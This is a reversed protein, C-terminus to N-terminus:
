LWGNNVDRVIVTITQDAGGTSTIKVTTSGTAVGTISLVTGSVTATAIATSSSTATFSMSAGDVFYQSLDDTALEGVELTYNPIKMATGTSSDMVNDLMLKADIIGTGMKGAYRSLSVQELNKDPDGSYYYAYTKIGTYYEEMSRTSAKIIDMFAEAKYHKKLKYAKSLGLAVVGSVIPCAMSTGDMYDYYITGYDPTPAVLSYISGHSTLEYDFDGGPASVSMRSDYNTYSAPTYDASLAGVSIYDQYRSPYCAQSAYENGSAFIAIGGDIVGNPSGANNIFYDLAEKELASGSLWEDDEAYGATNPYSAAGSNYGWSCQLIVAGNDAAYKMAQAEQYQSVMNYGDIIQCVMIRVGDGNDGGGAISKIGIDNNNVAAILGAVHTGHGTDGSSDYSIIGKDLVFNYGYYDGAYGNGDSDVTSAFTEAENTWMNAQLDPHDYCVGEDLVAVIISPDGTEIAWAEEANIDAGAISKTLTGENKLFWQEAYGDAEKVDTASAAARTAGNTSTIRRKRDFLPTLTRAYEVIEIDPSAALEAAVTALDLQDDFQVVYWLHLSNERTIEERDSTIPFVRKLSYASINDLQSDVTAIGSRTMEMKGSRTTPASLDLSSSASSRFKVLIEGQRADVPNNYIAATPATDVSVNTDISVDKTCGAVLLALSIAYIKNKM